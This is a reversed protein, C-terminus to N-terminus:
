EHGPEVQLMRVTGKQTRYIAVYVRTHLVVNVICINEHECTFTLIFSVKGAEQAKESIKNQFCTLGLEAQYFSNRLSDFGQMQNSMQRDTKMSKAVFTDSGQPFPVGLPNASKANEYCSPQLDLQLFLLHATTIKM